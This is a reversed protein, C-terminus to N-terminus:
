TKKGGRFLGASPRKKNHHRKTRAGERGRPLKTVRYWAVLAVVAGVGAGLLALEM